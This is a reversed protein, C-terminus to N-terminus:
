VKTVSGHHHHPNLDILPVKKRRTNKSLRGCYICLWVLFMKMRLCLLTFSKLVRKVESLFCNYEMNLSSLWQKDLVQEGDRNRMGIRSLCVDLPTDLKIYMDSKHVPTSLNCCEDILFSRTFESIIGNNYCNNGFVQSALPSRESLILAGKGVQSVELDFHNAACHIIHLQTISMNKELHTYNLYLPNFQDKYDCFATVPEEIVCVNDFLNTFPYTRETKQLLTMKGAGVVGEVSVYFSM